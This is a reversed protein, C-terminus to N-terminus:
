PVLCAGFAAMIVMLSPSWTPSPQSDAIVAGTIVQATIAPVRRFDDRSDFV